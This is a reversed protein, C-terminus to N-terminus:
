RDLSYDFFNLRFHLRHADNVAETILPNAFKHLIFSKNFDLSNISVMKIALEGYGQRPM